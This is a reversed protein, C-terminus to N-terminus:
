ITDFRSIVKNQQKDCMSQTSYNEWDSDLEEHVPLEIGIDLFHQISMDEEMCMKETSARMLDALETLQLDDNEFKNKQSEGVLIYGAKRFCNTM